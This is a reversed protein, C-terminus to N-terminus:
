RKAHPKVKITIQYHDKKWIMANLKIQNRLRTKKLSELYHVVVAVTTTNAIFQWANKLRKITLFHISAPKNKSIIALTKEDFVNNRPASRTETTRALHLSRKSLTPQSSKGMHAHNLVLVLIILSILMATLKLYYNIKLPILLNVAHVKM